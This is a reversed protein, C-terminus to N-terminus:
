EHTEDAMKLASELEDIKKGLWAHISKATELDMILNAEVSRFIAHRAERLKVVEDGLSGGEAIQYTVAKPIPSRENYVAMHVYPRPGVGGFAGDVHIDRFGATKEYEFRITRAQGDSDGQPM